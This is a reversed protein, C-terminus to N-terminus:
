GQGARWEDELIACLIMDHWTDGVKEASEFYGEKRMGLRKMAKFSAENGGLCRAIVRHYGGEEFALQLLARSGENAFGGGHFKPLLVYGLELTHPENPVSFLGIEGVFEGTDKLVAACNLKDGDELIARRAMRKDLLERADECTEAHHPLYRTIERDGRLRFLDELDCEEFARLIMRDTTIPFTPKLM